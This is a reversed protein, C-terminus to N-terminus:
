PEAAACCAPRSRSLVRPLGTQCGFTDRLSLLGPPNKTGLFERAKTRRRCTHRRRRRLHPYAHLQRDCQLSDATKWIVEEDAPLTIM